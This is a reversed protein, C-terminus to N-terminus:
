TAKRPRSGDHHKPIRVRRVEIKSENKKAQALDYAAQMRIWIEATGGFAKSLRIAMDPSIGASGNIVRSLAARTVGLHKAAQTITLNCAELPYKIQRGPHPSNKMPM